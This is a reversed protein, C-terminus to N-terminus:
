ANLHLYGAAVMGLFGVIVTAGIIMGTWALFKEAWQTEKFSVFQERVEAENVKDGIRTQFTDSLHDIKGIIEKQQARIEKHQDVNEILCDKINKIDTKLEAMNIQLDKVDKEM